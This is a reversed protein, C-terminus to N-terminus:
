LGPSLPQADLETTTKGCSAGERVEGTARSFPVIARATAEFGRERRLRPLALSPAEDM